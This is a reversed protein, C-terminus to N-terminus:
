LNVVGGLRLYFEPTAAWRVFSGTRLENDRGGVDISSMAATEDGAYRGIAFGASTAIYVHDGLLWSWGVLGRAAYGVARTELHEPGSFRYDEVTDLARRFAGAELVPGRWLARPFWQYGVGVEFIRGDKASGEAEPEVLLTLLSGAINDHYPFSSMTARIAHHEGVGLHLSGAVAEANDWRLPANVGAAVSLEARAAHIPVLAVALTAAVLLVCRM